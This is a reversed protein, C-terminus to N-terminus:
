KKIPTVTDGPGLFRVPPESGTSERSVLRRLIRGYNTAGVEQSRRETLRSFGITRQISSFLPRHHVCRIGGIGGMLQRGPLIKDLTRISPVENRLDGRIYGKGERKLPRLSSITVRIVSEPNIGM